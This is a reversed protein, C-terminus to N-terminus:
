RPVTAGSRGVTRRWLMRVRFGAVFKWHGLRLNWDLLGVYLKPAAVFEGDSM